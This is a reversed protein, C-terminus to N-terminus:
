RCKMGGDDTMADFVALLEAKTGLDENDPIAEEKYFPNMAVINGSQILRTQRVAWPNLSALKQWTYKQYYQYGEIKGGFVRLEKRLQEVQQWLYEESDSTLIFYIGAYVYRREDKDESIKGVGLKKRCLAQMLSDIGVYNEALSQKVQQDTVCEYATVLLRCEPYHKIKRYVRAAHESPVRRVYMVCSVRDKAELFSDHETYHSLAYDHLWGSTKALYERVDIRAQIADQMMLHHMRYLRDEASLPLITVGFTYMNGQMDKELAGFAAEAEELSNASLSVLLLVKREQDSLEYFCFKVGSGRLLMTCGRVKEYNSVAEYNESCYYAKDYRGGAFMTIGNAKIGTIDTVHQFENPVQYYGAKGAKQFSKRQM